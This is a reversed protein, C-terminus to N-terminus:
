GAKVYHLKNLRLLFEKSIEHWLFVLYKISYGLLFAIKNGQYKGFGREVFGICIDGFYCIIGTHKL